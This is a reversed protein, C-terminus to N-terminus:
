FWDKLGLFYDASVNFALSMRRLIDYAPKAKGKIWESVQSPKVGIRKAFETKTLHKLELFESLIESFNSGMYIMIYFNRYIAQNTSNEVNCYFM